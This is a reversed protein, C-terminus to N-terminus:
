RISMTVSLSPPLGFMGLCVSIACSAVHVPAQAAPVLGPSMISGPPRVMFRSLMSLGLSSGEAALDSEVKSGAKKVVGAKRTVSVAADTTAASTRPNVPKPEASIKM